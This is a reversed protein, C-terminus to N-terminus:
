HDKGIPGAGHILARLVWVGPQMSGQWPLHDPVPIPTPLHTCMHINPLVTHTKCHIYFAM